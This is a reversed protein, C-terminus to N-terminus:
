AHLNSSVSLKFLTLTGKATHCCLSNYFLVQILLAWPFQAHTLMNIAILFQM